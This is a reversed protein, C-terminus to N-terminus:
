GGGFIAVRGPPPGDVISAGPTGRSAGWLDTEYRFTRRYSSLITDLLGWSM